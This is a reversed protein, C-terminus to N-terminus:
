FDSSWPTLRPAWRNVNASYRTWADGFRSRLWPEEHLVVRVHFGLALVVTYLVLVPSALLLSWGAVLTLVGVYMPNRVYRYLGVTVLSKPPDWPALTGRGALYFDRVCWLLLVIGVLLVPAGLWLVTSRWLDVAALLPPAVFAAIGPLVLFAILARLFM